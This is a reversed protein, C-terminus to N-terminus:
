RGWKQGAYNGFAGIGAGLLGGWMGRKSAAEAARRDEETAYRGMTADLFTNQSNMAYNGMAQNNAMGMQAAEMARQIMSQNLNNLNNTLLEDQDVMGYGSRLRGQGAQMGRLDGIQKTIQPMALNWQAQSAQTAAAMPDFNQMRNFYQDEAQQGRAGIQAVRADFARMRPDTGGQQKKKKGFMGAVGGIVTPALASAIMGWM